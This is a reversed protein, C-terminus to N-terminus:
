ASRDDTVYSRRRRCDKFSPDVRLSVVVVPSSDISSDLANERTLDVVNNEHFSSDATLDVM